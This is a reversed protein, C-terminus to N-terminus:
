PGVRRYFTSAPDTGRSQSFFATFDNGVSALGVYDGVFFGRAFPAKRMDFSVDTLQVEEEWGVPDTCDAEDPHCHVVFYDTALTEPDPTNNRFDYYTVAVTGDDAVDVSATFAQRNGIPVDSPTQNVQIPSSWTFGGDTSRSFAIADAEFDNFRADQWVAYLDGTGADVAIDPIIDGVRVEDGTEPDEVGITKMRDIVIANRSWTEGQDTSRLIAARDVTFLPPQGPRPDIPRRITRLDFINVLDGNPLVVIQNAITQSNQGPDFIERAPDWSDGGDTTRAFWAPGRFALSVFGSIVSARESPPFVLRDWVAYVLDSDFPDATISQKDNFVNADLDRIVEEPTSWTLGGDTSKSALLAHDFDGGLGEVFPPAVDNFSLALQHVVGNPSFSVWPDTSRDYIGGSCDTIGPIVVPQVWSSGGDFSVGAVLGRAGGNSWRDAQWIGVINDTDGPNVDIWPEVESNLFVTGSQGPVNDATCGLFPSAGSVQVLPDAM